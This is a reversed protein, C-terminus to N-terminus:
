GSPPSPARIATWRRAMMVPSWIASARWPKSEVSPRGTTLMVKSPVPLWRKARTVWCFTPLGNAIMRSLTTMEAGFMLSGIRPPCACIDPLKVTSVASWSAMESREPLSGTSSVTTSSRVTPGSSPASEMRSPIMAMAM